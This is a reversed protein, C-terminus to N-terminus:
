KQNQNKNKKKQKFYCWYLPKFKVWSRNKPLFHGLILKKLRVFFLQISNKQYIHLQLLMFASFQTLNSHCLEQELTKPSFLGSFRGPILTKLVFKISSTAAAYLSSNSNFLIKPWFFFFFIKKKKIIGASVM